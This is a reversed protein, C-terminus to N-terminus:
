GMIVSGSFAGARRKDALYSELMDALRNKQGQIIKLVSPLYESARKRCESSGRRENLEQRLSQIIKLAPSSSRKDSRFSALCYKSVRGKKSSTSQLGAASRPKKHRAAKSIGYLLDHRNKTLGVAGKQVIHM